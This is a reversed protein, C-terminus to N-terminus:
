KKKFFRCHRQNNVNPPTYKKKNCYYGWLIHKCKTCNAKGKAFWEKRKKRVDIIVSTQVGTKLQVGRETNM